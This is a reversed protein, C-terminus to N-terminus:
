SSRRAAPRAPFAAKIAGAGGFEVTVAGGEPGIELPALVAGASILDGERLRAGREHLHRALEILAEYPDFGAEAASGEAVREGDLFLAVRQEAAGGLGGALVTQGVVLGAHAANDAIIAYAGSGFPDALWPHNIELGPRVARVARDVAGRDPGFADGDGIEVIWEADLVVPRPDPAAVHPSFVVGDAYIRGFIPAAVGLATRAGPSTAGIKWGKAAGGRLAHLRDAADYAATLTGPRHEPALEVPVGSRRAHQLLKAIDTM